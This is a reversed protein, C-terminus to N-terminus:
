EQSPVQLPGTRSRGAAIGGSRRELQRRVVVQGAADVGNVQFVPKAIDLAITTVAQM